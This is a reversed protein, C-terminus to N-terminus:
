WQGTFSMHTSFATLPGLFIKKGGMQEKKNREGETIISADSVRASDLFDCTGEWKDPASLNNKGRGKQLLKMQTRDTQKRRMTQKLLPSTTPEMEAM